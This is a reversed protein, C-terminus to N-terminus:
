PNLDLEQDEDKIPTEIFDDVKKDFFPEFSNDDSTLIEPFPVQHVILWRKKVVVHHACYCVSQCMQKYHANHILHILYKKM